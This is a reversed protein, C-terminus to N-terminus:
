EPLIRKLVESDSDGSRASDVTDLDPKKIVICDENRWHIEVDDNYEKVYREMVKQVSDKSKYPISHVILERQAFKYAFVIDLDWNVRDAVKKLNTFDDRDIVAEPNSQKDTIKKLEVATDWTGDVNRVYVDPMPLASNGSYGCRVVFNDSTERALENQITNEYQSGAKQSANTM